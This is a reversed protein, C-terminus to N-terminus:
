NLVNAICHTNGGSVHAYDRVPLPEYGAEVFLRYAHAAKGRLDHATLRVGAGEVVEGPFVPFIVTPAGSDLHVFPVANTTARYERVDSLSVPLRRVRYGLWELQEHYGSLLKAEASADDDIWNLMVDGNGLLLFAQDIHILGGGQAGRLVSVEAGGFQRSIRRAVDAETLTRGSLRASEITRTVVDEGALVRTGSESQDFLLNGAEFVFDTSQVTERGFIKTAIAQRSEAIHRAVVMKPHPLASVLFRGEGGVTIFEGLDQSWLDVERDPDRVFHLHIDDRREFLSTWGLITDRDQARAVIGIESYDPIASLLETYVAHVFREDVTSRAVDSTSSARADPQPVSILVRKLHRAYEPTVSANAADTSRM